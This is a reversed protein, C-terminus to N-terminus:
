NCYFLSLVLEMPRFIYKLVCDTRLHIPFSHRERRTHSFGQRLRDSEFFWWLLRVSMCLVMLLFSLAAPLLSCLVAALHGGSYFPVHIGQSLAPWVM